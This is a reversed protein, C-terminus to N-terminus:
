SSKRCMPPLFSDIEEDTYTYDGDDKLAKRAMAVAKDLTTPSNDYINKLDQQVSQYEALLDDYAKEGVGIQILLILLRERIDWLANATKMHEKELSSLDFTKLFANIATTAFSFIVSAVKLWMPDAFIVSLIGATTIASAIINVVNLTNYRNKYIDAQKCQIKHSWVVSAFLQRVVAELSQYKDKM